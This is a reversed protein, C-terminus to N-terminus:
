LNARTVARHGAATQSLATLEAITTDVLNEWSFRAVEQRAAATLREGLAPDALLCRVGEVIADGDNLEVLLGTRGHEITEPNGGVRSAVVPVGAFMAELIT